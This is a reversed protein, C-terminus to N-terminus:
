TGATKLYGLPTYAMILIVAALVALRVVRTRVGRFTKRKAM